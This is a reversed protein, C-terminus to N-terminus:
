QDQSVIAVSSFMDIEVTFNQDLEISGGSSQGTPYFVLFPNERDDQWFFITGESDRFQTTQNISPYLNNPLNESYWKGKQFSAISQASNGIFWATPKQTLASEESLYNIFNSYTEIQDSDYKQLFSSNTLVITSILGMLMLVIILEILTFGKQATLERYGM